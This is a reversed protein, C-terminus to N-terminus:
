KGRLILFNFNMIIYRQFQINIKGANRLNNDQGPKALAGFAKGSLDFHFTEPCGPCEDTIPVTIPNGSCAPNETCKM